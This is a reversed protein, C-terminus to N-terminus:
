STNQSGLLNYVKLVVFYFIYFSKRKEANLRYAFFFLAVVVVFCQPKLAEFYPFNLEMKLLIFLVEKEKLLCVHFM